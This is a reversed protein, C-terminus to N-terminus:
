PRNKLLEKFHGSLEQSTSLQQQQIEAQKETTEVQKEMVQIIKQDTVAAQQQNSWMLFGLLAMAVFGLGAKSLADILQLKSDSM